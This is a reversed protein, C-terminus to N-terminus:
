YEDLIEQYAPNELLKPNQLLHKLLLISKAYYYGDAIREDITFSIDVSDKMTVRGEDDFYPHKHIAGIVLFVSNTGRQTLHHYAANLKISGLNSIFVSAYSPDAFTMSAPMWGHFDLWNLFLVVIKLIWHPIKSVLSLSSTAKDVTDKRNSTIEKILRTHISDITSDDPHIIHAIAEKGGDTFQKKIIFSTSVENREYMKKGQVFYNMKPRVTILKVTAAVLVHFLKYPHEPNASNKKELYTQINTIDITEQIFAENDCRNPYMHPMILHLPDLNRLLWGDKRDGWRKKRPNPITDNKHM